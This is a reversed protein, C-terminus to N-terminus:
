LGLGNQKPPKTRRKARPAQGGSKSGAQRLQQVTGPSHAVVDDSGSGDSEIPLAVNMRTHFSMYFMEEPRKTLNIYWFGHPESVAKNYMQLLTKKDHVATIEELVAELELSSRLKGILYFQTNVRMLSSLSRLKQSAVLVSICSHRGRIFLTNLMSGGAAAGSQSHVVRPDDAFDDVIICIGYLKKLGLKKSHETLRVQQDVIANLAAPDWKDFFCQEKQPDVGLEHEAYKKVPLWASDLNVSPSFVYIRNWCGRYIRVCIDVLAVTKFTGSPAVLLGRCPLTPLHDHKQQQQTYQPTPHQQIHLHSSDSSAAGSM